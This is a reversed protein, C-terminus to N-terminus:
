KCLFKDSSGPVNVREADLRDLVDKGESEGSCSRGGHSNLVRRSTSHSISARRLCCFCSAAPILQAMSTRRCSVAIPFPSSSLTASALALFLLLISASSHRAYTRSTSLRPLMPPKSSSRSSPSLSTALLSFTASSSPASTRTEVGTDEVCSALTDTGLDSGRSPLGLVISEVRSELGETDRGRVTIRGAGVLGGACSGSAEKADTAAGRFIWIGGEAFLVVISECRGIEWRCVALVLSNRVVKDVLGGTM